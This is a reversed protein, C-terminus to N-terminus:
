HAAASLKFDDFWVGSATATFGAYGPTAIAASSGDTVTLKTQGDIGATLVVPSTGTVTFSITAWNRLDPIGSAVDGLITASGARWRRIRLRGSSTIAADYRDGSTGAPSGRLTVALETGFGVLRADIRCDACQVGAVYARDLTTRDANARSDTIFAGSAITWSPGLGTVDTRNFDDAFLV